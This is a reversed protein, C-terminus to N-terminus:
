WLYYWINALSIFVGATAGLVYGFTYYWEERKTKKMKSKMKM